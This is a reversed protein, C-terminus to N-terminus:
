HIVYKTGPKPTVTVFYTGAVLNSITLVTPLQAGSAFDSSFSGVVAGGCDLRVEGTVSGAFGPSGPGVTISKTGGGGPWDFSYYRVTNDVTRGEDPHDSLPVATACSINTPPPPPDEIVYKAFNFPIGNQEVCGVIEYTGAPVALTTVSRYEGRLLAPTTGIIPTGCGEFLSLSVGAQNALAHRWLTTIQKTSTTTFSVIGGGFFCMSQPASYVDTYPDTEDPAYDCVDGGGTGGSTSTAASSTSEATSAVSSSTSSAGGDGGGSTSADGGTGSTTSAGGDGSTTATTSEGGTGGSGGEGGTGNATSTASSSGVAGSASSSAVVSTDGSTSAASGTASTGGGSGTGGGTSDGCAAIAAAVLLLAVLSSALQRHM